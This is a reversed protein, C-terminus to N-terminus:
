RIEDLWAFVIRRLLARAVPATAVLESLDADDRVRDDLGEHEDRALAVLATRLTTDSERLVTWAALARLEDRWLGFDIAQIESADTDGLIRRLKRRQRRRLTGSLANILHGDGRVEDAELALAALLGALEALESTELTLIAPSTLAGAAKLSAARFHAEPASEPNGPAGAQGVPSELADAIETAVAAIMLRLKEHIPDDLIGSGPPMARSQDTISAIENPTAVGLARLIRVGDAVAREGRSGEAVRLAVRLAAANTPNAALVIRHHFLAEDWHESGHSLLEALSARVAIREPDHHVARRYSIIAADIQELPGAQLRGLQEHLEALDRAENEPHQEIFRSLAAAAEQWEGFGRLLRAHALAATACRPDAEWALGFSEAAGRRDGAAERAHAQVLALTSLDEDRTLWAAARDAVEAAEAFRNEEFVLSALAIWAAPLQRDAQLARRLHQEASAERGGVAREWLAARLLREGVQTAFPTAAAWRAIAAIGEDVHELAERVRVSGELAEDFRPEDELAAEYRALAEEFEGRAELCAGLTTTHRAREPYPAAGELRAELVRRAADYDGLAALAEGQAGAAHDCEPEVDLARGYLAAAADLRGILAAADGGACAVEVLEQQALRDGIPLALAESAAEFAEEPLALSLALRARAAHSAPEGPSRKVAIRLLELAASPDNPLALQAARQLVESAETDPLLQAQQRLSDAAATTDGLAEQLRASLKWARALTPAQELAKGARELAEDTRHLSELCLALRLHDDAQVATDDADCWTAFATAFAEMDDARQHLEASRLLRRRRLPSILAAEAYAGRARPVDDLQEDAIAAIRLWVERTREPAEDGLVEIESEYLDAASAWDEMAELLRELARLAAFDRPDAETAAAYCRSAQTTSELRHWCVDGLRRLLAARESSDVCEPHDLERKLAAAVEPWRGLYEATRRLGRLATRSNPTCDLARQYAHQAGSHAHLQQERLSALELWLDGQDGHRELHAGLRREFEVADGAARLLRLCDRELRSREEERPADSDLLARLHRLADDPRGLEHDYGAALARHIERRREEFVPAADLAGLERECTIAWEEVHGIARQCSALDRLLDFAQSSQPPVQALAASLHLSAREPECLPGQCLAALDRRLALADVGEFELLAELTRARDAHWGLQDQVRALEERIRVDQPAAKCAELLAHAARGREGRTELIEAREMHIARRRGAHAELKAQTDLAYLLADQNGAVRHIEAIRALVSPDSPREKRLRALWPLAAAPTASRAALNIARGIGEVREDEPLDAYADTQLELLTEFRAERELLAALEDRLPRAVVACQIARHYDEIAEDTRSGINVLMRARRAYLDSRETDNRARARRADILSLSTEHDGLATALALAAEFGETNGPDLELVRRTHILADAVRGHSPDALLQALELRVPIEEPGALHTLEAELLQALAVANGHQRHLERLSAELGRDDPRHSLAEQYAQAAERTEGRELFADGQCVLWNAREAADTTAAAADRCLQILDVSYGARAYCSALPLAVSSAPGAEGLAVELASIAGELDQLEADLVEAIQLRLATRQVEAGSDDDAPTGLTALRAELVELVQEPRGEERYQAVLFGAATTHAPNLAFVRAYHDAATSRDGSEACSEALRAHLTLARHPEPDTALEALTARQWDEHRADREYRDSLRRWIDGREPALSAAQELHYLAGIEDRLRNACLSALREHIVAQEGSEATEVANTLHVRLQQWDAARELLGEYREAAARRLEPAEGERALERYISCAEDSGSLAEELLVARELACRERTERDPAHAIQEALFDALGATDVGARLAAELGSKADAREPTRALVSRFLSASEDERGQFELLLDARRLDLEIAEERDPDFSASRIELRALLEDFRGTRELLADLHEEDDLVEPGSDREILRRTAIAGSLDGNEEQLRAVTTLCATRRPPELQEALRWQARILEPIQGAERRVWVLAELADISSPAIDLAREFFRVAEDHMGRHVYLGGLRLRNQAQEAPPLLRDLAELTACLEPVQGPRQHIRALARLAEPEEPAFRTWRQIWPLAEDPTGLRQYLIEIERVLRGFRARDTTRSAEEEHQRLLREPDLETSPSPQGLESDDLKVDLRRIGDQAAVASPDATGARRYADLASDPDFLENEYLQGLEVLTAARGSLDDLAIAARQELVDALEAHRENQLLADSLADLVLANDPAVRAADQLHALAKEHDGRESRLSAAELLIAPSAASGRLEAAAELRELLAADDQGAREVDALAEHLEIAEPDVSLGAALWARAGSLDGLREVHLRGAELALAVRERQTRASEFRLRMLYAVRLWNESSHAEDLLADLSVPLTPDNALARRHLRLAGEADGLRSGVLRAQEALAEARASGTVERALAEWAQAAEDSHGEHELRRARAVQEPQADRLHGQTPSM